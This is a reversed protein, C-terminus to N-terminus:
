ASSGSPELLKREQHDARVSSIFERAVVRETAQAQVQAAGLLCALQGDLREVLGPRGAEGLTGKALSQTRAELRDQVVPGLSQREEDLLQRHRQRRASSQALRRGAEREILAIRQRNGLANTVGHQQAGLSQAATSKPGQLHRSDGAHAEVEIQHRIQGAPITAQVLQDLPLDQEFRLGPDSGKSVRQHAIGDVGIHCPSAASRKM